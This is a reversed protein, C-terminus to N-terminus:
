VGHGGAFSNWIAIGNSRIVYFKGVKPTAKAQAVMHWFSKDSNGTCITTNRTVEMLELTYM